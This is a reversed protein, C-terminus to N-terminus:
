EASPMIKNKLREMDREIKGKVLWAAGFAWVAIAELFFTYGEVYRNLDEKLVFNEISFLIILVGICGWIIIGCGKYFNKRQQSIRHSMTFKYICMYGLLALFIGASLLHVTNRVPDSPYGFMYGSDCLDPAGLSGAHQTPILVTIFIFLAALSTALDDSIREYRAPDKPYGKYSYLVLSFAFLIGIFFIGASTYYYHSISALLDQHVIFLIVPLAIGLIGIVKRLRYQSNQLHQPQPQAQPNEKHAM